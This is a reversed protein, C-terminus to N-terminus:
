SGTFFRFRKEIGDGTNGSDPPTAQRSSHPMRQSAQCQTIPEDNAKRGRSPPKAIAKRLYEGPNDDTDMLYPVREQNIWWVISKCAELMEEAASHLPCFVIDWLYPEVNPEPILKCGCKM